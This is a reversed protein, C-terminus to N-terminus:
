HLNIGNAGPRQMLVANEDFRAYQELSRILTEVASRRAYLYQLTQQVAEDHFRSEPVKACRMTCKYWFDWFCVLM